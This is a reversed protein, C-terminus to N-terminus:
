TGVLYTETIWLDSSILIVLLLWHENIPIALNYLWNVFNDRAEGQCPGYVAM